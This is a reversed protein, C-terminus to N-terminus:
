RLGSILVEVHADVTAAGEASLLKSGSRNRGADVRARLAAVFAGEINLYSLDFAM